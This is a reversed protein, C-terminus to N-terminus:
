PFAPKVTDAKVLSLEVEFRACAAVADAPMVVTVIGAWAHILYSVTHM